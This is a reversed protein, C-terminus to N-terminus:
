LFHGELRDLEEPHIITIYGNKFRLLGKNQWDTLHSRVIDTPLGSIEGLERHSFVSDIKLGDHTHRGYARAISNLTKALRTNINTILSNKMFDNTTRIQKSFINLLQIAVEPHDMLFAVFRERKLEVLKCPTLTKVSATRQRQDFLAIEGFSEGYGIQNVVMSDGNALTIRVELQGALTLYMTHGIDGQQIVLHDQPFDIISTKELLSDLSSNDLKSLLSHSMVAHRATTIPSALTM